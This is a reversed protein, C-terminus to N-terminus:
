VDAIGMHEMAWKCTGLKVLECADKAHLLARMVYIKKSFDNDSTIVKAMTEVIM